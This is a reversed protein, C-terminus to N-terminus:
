PDEHGDTPQNTPRDSMIEQFPTSIGLELVGIPASTQLFEEQLSLKVNEPDFEIFM